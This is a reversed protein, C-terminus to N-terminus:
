LSRGSMLWRKFGKERRPERESDLPSIWVGEAVSGCLRKRKSLLRRHHIPTARSAGGSAEVKFQQGILGFGKGKAM